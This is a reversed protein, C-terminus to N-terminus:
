PAAYGSAGWATAALKAQGSLNPHFYDRTSVDSALFATNFVANNDFRCNTYQACVSALASNFALNRQYVLQRQPEYTSSLPNALLSQCIRLLSWVARASSNNHLVVWLNYVNPVSVVYVVAAPARQTITTMAASFQATYNAVSTMTSTTSTCLDNAGMLVTVFQISSTLSGAQGNLDVMKKGSVAYNFNKGSIAPNLALFRNYLSNVSTTTGTSWSNQKADAFFGGTNYATTISDGLAAMSSPYTVAGAAQVQSLTFLVALCLVLIQRKRNIKM